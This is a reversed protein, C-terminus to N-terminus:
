NVNGDNRAKRVFFNVTKKLLLFVMPNKLKKFYEIYKMKM